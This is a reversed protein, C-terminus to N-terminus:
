IDLPTALARGSQDAGDTLEIHRVAGGVHHRSFCDKRDVDPGCVIRYALPGHGVHQRVNLTDPLVAVHGNMHALRVLSGAHRACRPQLLLQRRCELLAAQRRPMQWRAGSM